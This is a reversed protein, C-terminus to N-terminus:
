AKRANQTRLVNHIGAIVIIFKYGADAAKSILGIYNSTKGSQVHGIVLGRKDWTSDKSEPDQLYGLIKTSINNLSEVVQANWGHKSLFKEYAPFYVRNKEPDAEFKEAWEADHGDPIDVVAGGPDMTTVVETLVGAVIADLDGEYGLGPALLATQERVQEETPTERPPSFLVM